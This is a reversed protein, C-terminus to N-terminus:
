GARGWHRNDDVAGDPQPTDSHQGRVQGPWPGYVHLRPLCSRGWQLRAPPTRRVDSM